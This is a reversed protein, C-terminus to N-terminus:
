VDQILYNIMVCLLEAGLKKDLQADEADVKADVM